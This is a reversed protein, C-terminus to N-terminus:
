RSEEEGKTNQRGGFQKVYFLFWLCKIFNVKQIDCPLMMWYM